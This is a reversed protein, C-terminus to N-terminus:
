NEVTRSKLCNPVPATEARARGSPDDAVMPSFFPAPTGRRLDVRFRSATSRLTSLKYGLRQAVQDLPEGDVFVARLAEYRRQFTQKPQLFFQRPHNGDM